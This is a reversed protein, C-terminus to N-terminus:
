NEMQKRTLKGSKYDALLARVGDTTLACGESVYYGGEDPIDLLMICPESTPEPLKCLERIRPAPGNSDTAVFFKFEADEGAAKAAATYEAAIPELASFAATHVASDAGEALVVVSTVEDIGDASKSLNKVPKEHFPFDALDGM